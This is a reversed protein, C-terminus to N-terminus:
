CLSRAELLICFRLM